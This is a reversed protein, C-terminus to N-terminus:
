GNYWSASFFHVKQKFGLNNLTLQVQEIIDNITKDKPADNPHLAIYIIDSCDSHQRAAIKTEGFVDCLYDEWYYEQAVEKFEEFSLQCSSSEGDTATSEDKMIREFLLKQFSEPLDDFGGCFEIGWGCFSVSSSNTVFDSKVKMERELCEIYEHQALEYNNKIREIFEDNKIKKGLLSEALDIWRPRYRARYNDLLKQMRDSMRAKM